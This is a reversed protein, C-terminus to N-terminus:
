LQSISICYRKNTAEMTSDQYELIIATAMMQILIVLELHM